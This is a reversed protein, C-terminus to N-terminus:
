NFGAYPGTTPFPATGNKRVRVSAPEVKGSDVDGIMWLVEWRGGDRWEGKPGEVLCADPRAYVTMAIRRGDRSWKWGSAVVSSARGLCPYRKVAQRTADAFVDSREIVTRNVIEFVRLRELDSGLYHNALFWNSRSSWLISFPMDNTLNPIEDLLRGQSDELTVGSQEGGKQVVAWRGNPALSRGPCTDIFQYGPGGLGGGVHSCDIDLAGGAYVEPHL